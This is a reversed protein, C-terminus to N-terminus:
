PVKAHANIPLPLIVMGCIKFAKYKHLPEGAPM